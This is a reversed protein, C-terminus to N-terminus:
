LLIKGPMFCIQGIAVFATGALEFGVDPLFTQLNHLVLKSITYNMLSWSYSEHDLHDRPETKKRKSSFYENDSEADSESPDEDESNDDASDYHKGGKDGLNTPQSAFPLVFIYLTWHSIVFLYRGTNFAPFHFPAFCSLLFISHRSVHCCKRQCKIPQSPVLLKWALLM